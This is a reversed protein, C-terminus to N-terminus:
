YTEQLVKAADILTAIFETKREMKLLTDGRKADESDEKVRISVFNDAKTSLGISAIDSIPIRRRVKCRKMLPPKINYSLFAHLIQWRKIFDLKFIPVLAM